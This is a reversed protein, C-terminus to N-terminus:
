TCAPIGGPKDAKNPRGAPRGAQVKGVVSTDKHAFSVRGAPRGAVFTSPLCSGATPRDADAAGKLRLRPRRHHVAHWVPSHM